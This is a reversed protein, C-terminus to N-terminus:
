GSMGVVFCKGARQKLQPNLGISRRGDAISSVGVISVSCPPVSSGSSALSCLIFTETSNSKISSVSVGQQGPHFLQNSGMMAVAISVEIGM